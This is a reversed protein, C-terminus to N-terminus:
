CFETVTVAVPVSTTGVANVGVIYYTYAVNPRRNHDLFVLPETAPITAVSDTLQANRYITYSVPLSAGTANWTIRNILDRQLLFINEIRCAQATIEFSQLAIVSVTNSIYNAVYAYRGNPTIAVSAAGQQTTILPPVVFNSATAIINVTGEGTPIGDQDNYNTTYLYKGNPTLAAGAAQSGVEITDIITNTAVDLVTVTNGIPTFNNSGFNTIYAYTGDATFVINYPGFFGPITDIVTNDSTRIVCLTGDTLGTNYIGAYVYAGDPTMGLTAVLSQGMPMTITDTIMNTNLDVVNVTDPDPATYNSVYGTTGDPTIVMDSPGSFGTIVDAVTNTAIDIVTVTTTNSNTVYAKTGAPNITITYPQNFSADTITTLVTNTAVDIVTVTDQGMVSNDNNNAVYVFRSDPTIAVDSPNLGLAIPITAIVTNPAASYLSPAATLLVTCFLFLKLKMM